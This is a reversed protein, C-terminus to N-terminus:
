HGQANARLPSPRGGRPEESGIRAGVVLVGLPALVERVSEDLIETLALSLDAEFRARHEKATPQSGDEKPAHWGRLALAVAANIVAERNQVVMTTVAEFENEIQPRASRVFPIPRRNPDDVPLLDGLVAETEAESPEWRYQHRLFRAKRIMGLDPVEMRKARNELDWANMTDVVRIAVANTDLQGNEDFSLYAGDIHCLLNDGRWGYCASLYKQTTGAYQPLTRDTSMVAQSLRMPGEDTWLYYRLRKTM